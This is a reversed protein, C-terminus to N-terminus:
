IGRIGQVKGFTPPSSEQEEGLEPLVLAGKVHPMFVVKMGGFRKNIWPNDSFNQDLTFSGYSTRLRLETLADQGLILYKPTFKAIDELIKQQSYIFRVIDDPKIETRQVYESRRVVKGFRSLFFWVFKRFINRKPLQLIVFGDSTYDVDVAEVTFIQM